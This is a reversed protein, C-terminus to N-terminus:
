YGVRQTGLTSRCGPSPSPRKGGRRLPRLGPPAPSPLIRGGSRGLREKRPHDTGPLPQASARCEPLVWSLFFCGRGMVSCFMVKFVIDLVM